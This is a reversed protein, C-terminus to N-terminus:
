SSYHKNFTLGGSMSIRVHLILIEKALKPLIPALENGQDPFTVSHGKASIGGHKLMHIQMIPALRSLLQQEVISLEQLEKPVLGQEM